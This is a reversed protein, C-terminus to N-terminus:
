VKFGELNKDSLKSIAGTAVSKKQVGYGVVVVEELLEAAPDMVLDIVAQNGVTVEETRMGTYSFILVAEPGPVKLEYNGDFDTITGSSIGKILINAGIVPLGDESSTVTGTVTQEQAHLGAAWLCAVVLTLYFQKM